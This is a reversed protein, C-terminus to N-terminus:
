SQPVFKASNKQRFNWVIACCPLALRRRIQLLGPHDFHEINSWKLYIVHQHFNGQSYKIKWSIACGRSKMYRMHCGTPAAVVRKRIHLGGVCVPAPWWHITLVLVSQLWHSETASGPKFTARAPLFRENTVQVLIYPHAILQRIGIISWYKAHWM